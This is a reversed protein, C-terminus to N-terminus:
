VVIVILKGIRILLTKDDRSRSFINGKIIVVLFVKDFHIM